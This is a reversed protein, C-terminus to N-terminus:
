RAKGDLKPVNAAVQCAKVDDVELKMRTATRNIILRSRRRREEVLDEIGADM